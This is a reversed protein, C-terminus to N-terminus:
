FIYLFMHKCESTFSVIQISICGYLNIVHLFIKRNSIGIQTPYNIRPIRNRISKITLPPISPRIESMETTVQTLDERTKQDSKHGIRSKLLRGLIHNGYQVEVFYRIEETFELFRQKSTYQQNWCGVQHLFSFLARPAEDTTNSLQDM